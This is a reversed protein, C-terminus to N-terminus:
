APRAALRAGVFAVPLFMLVSAAVYWMPHPLSSVNLINGILFLGGVILGHIVPARRAITAAIWAGVLTGLAYGVLLLAFAGMPLGSIAAKMSEADSRDTGEPLPYVVMSAAQIAFIVVVAVFAGLVVGLISRIM